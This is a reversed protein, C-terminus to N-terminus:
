IGHIELGSLTRHRLLHAAIAAIAACPSRVLREAAARCHALEAAAPSPPLREALYQRAMELDIRFSGDIIPGFVQLM